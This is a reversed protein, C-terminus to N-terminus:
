SDSRCGTDTWSRKSCRANSQLQPPRKPYLVPDQFTFEDNRKECLLFKDVCDVFFTDSPPFNLAINRVPITLEVLLLSKGTTKDLKWKGHDVIRLSLEGELEYATSRWL